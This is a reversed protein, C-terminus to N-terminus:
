SHQSEHLELQSHISRTAAPTKDRHIIDYYVAIFCCVFAVFLLVFCGEGLFVISLGRM